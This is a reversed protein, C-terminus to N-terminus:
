SDARLILVVDIGSHGARRYTQIMQFVGTVPRPGNFSINNTKVTYYRKSGVVISLDQLIAVGLVGLMCAGTVIYQKRMTDSKGLM